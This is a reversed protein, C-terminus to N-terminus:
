RNYFYSLITVFGPSQQGQHIVLCAHFLGSTFDSVSWCIRSTNFASKCPRDPKSAEKSERHHGEESATAADKKRRDRVEQQLVVWYLEQGSTQFCAAEEIVLILNQQYNFYNMAFSGTFSLCVLCVRLFPVCVIKM